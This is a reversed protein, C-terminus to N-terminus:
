RANNEEKTKFKLLTPAATGLYKTRINEKGKPMIFGERKAIAGMSMFKPKALEKKLASNVQRLYEKDSTLDSITKGMDSVLATLKIIKQKATKSINQAESSDTQLDEIWQRLKAEIKEVDQVRDYLETAKAEWYVSQDWLENKNRQTEKYENKLTEMVTQIGEFKTKFEESKSQFSSVDKRRQELEGEIQTKEDFFMDRQNIVATLDAKQQLNTRESEAFRSNLGEYLGNLDRLQNNLAPIVEIKQQADDYLSQKLKLEQTIEELHQSISKNHEELVNIQGKLDDQAALFHEHQESLQKNKHKEAELDQELRGNTLTFQAQGSQRKVNKNKDYFNGLKM